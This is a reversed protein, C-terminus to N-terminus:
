TNKKIDGGNNDAGQKKTDRDYLTIYNSDTSIKKCNVIKGFVQLNNPQSEFFDQEVIYNRWFHFDNREWVFFGLHTM